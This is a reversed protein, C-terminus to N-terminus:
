EIRGEVENMTTVITADYTWTEDDELMYFDYEYYVSPNCANWCEVHHAIVYSYTSNWM